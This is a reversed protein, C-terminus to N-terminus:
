QDELFEIHFGLYRHASIDVPRVFVICCRRHGYTHLCERVVLWFSPDGKRLMAAFVIEYASCKLM